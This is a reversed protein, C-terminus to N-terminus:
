RICLRRVRGSLRAVELISTAETQVDDCIAQKKDSHMQIRPDRDSIFIYLLQSFIFYPLFIYITSFFFLIQSWSYCFGLRSEEDLTLCVKLFILSIKNERVRIITLFIKISITAYNTYLNEQLKWITIEIIIQNNTRHTISSKFADEQRTQLQL